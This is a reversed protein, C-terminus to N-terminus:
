MGQEDTDRDSQIKVIRYGQKEQGRSSKMKASIRCGQKEKDKFSQKRKSKKGV